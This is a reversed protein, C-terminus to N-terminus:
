RWATMRNAKSASAKAASSMSSCVLVRDATVVKVPVFVPALLLAEWLPWFLPVPLAGFVLLPLVAWQVSPCPWSPALFGCQWPMESPQYGGDAGATGGAGKGNVGCKLWFTGM